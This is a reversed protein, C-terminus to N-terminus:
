GLMATFDYGSLLAYKLPGHIVWSTYHNGFFCSGLKLLHYHLYGATRPYFYDPYRSAPNHRFLLSIGDNLRRPEMVLMEHRQPLITDLYPRVSRLHQALERHPSTIGIEIARPYKLSTSDPRLRIHIDTYQEILLLDLQDLVRGLILLTERESLTAGSSTAHIIRRLAASSRALPLPDQSSVVISCSDESSVKPSPDQQYDCTAYAGQSALQRTLIAMAEHSHEIYASSPDLTSASHLCSAAISCTNDGSHATLETITRTKALNRLMEKGVNGLLWPSEFSYKFALMHALILMQEPSTGITTWEIHLRESAGERKAIMMSGTLGLERLHEGYLDGITPIIFRKEMRFLYELVEANTLISLSDDPGLPIRGVM